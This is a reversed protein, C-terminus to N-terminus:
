DNASEDKSLDLVVNDKSKDFYQRRLPNRHAYAEARRNRLVDIAMYIAHLMSEPSAKDQGAIDFGTGHDPSTRVYKLGATFNVGSSMALTKFPALGQDHYMALVGDFNKYAETGFFGDSAYPGFAWIGQECAEAIAPSIIDLEETGILGNEGAHPNLSLVAIKPADIGFDQKLSKNLITLKELIAEKTVAEPVKALPLHTTVLAVRLGETCLMMLSKDGDGLVSELYETHGPFHFIPSQITDKNIPATVLVDILGERLDSTARELAKFAAEGAAKSPTGPEILLDEGVVNIINVQNDRAQSADTIQVINFPQLEIGKRYFAAAKASGYIIPTCLETMRPDEMSKLIVEYGIGNTDGHTIGVKIKNNAM